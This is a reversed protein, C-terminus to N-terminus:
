RVEHLGYLRKVGNVGSHTRGQVPGCICSLSSSMSQVISDFIMKKVLMRKAPIVSAIETKEYCTTTNSKGLVVGEIATPNKKKMPNSQKVVLIQARTQLHASPHTALVRPRSSVWGGVSLDVKIKLILVRVNGKQLFKIKQLSVGKRLGLIVLNPSGRTLGSKRM